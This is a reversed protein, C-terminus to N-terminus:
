TTFVFSDRFRDAGSRQIPPDASAYAFARGDPRWSFEAVDTDGDTVPRAPGGASPVIFLRTHTQKDVTDDAVFGVQRGDPSFAPDALGERNEVLTQRAGNQLDLLVLDHTRRDQDWVVRSVVLAAHKGDPAIAPSGLTVLQQFDDERIQPM